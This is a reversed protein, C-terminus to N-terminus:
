GESQPEKGEQPEDIYWSSYDEALGFSTQNGAAQSAM